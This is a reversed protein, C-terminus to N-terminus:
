SGTETLTMCATWNVTKLGWAANAQWIDKRQFLTGDRFIYGKKTVDRPFEVIDGYRYSRPLKGRIKAGNLQYSLKYKRGRGLAMSFPPISKTQVGNVFWSVQDTKTGTQTIDFSVASLNRIVKLKGPLHIEKLGSCGEFANEGIMEVSDPIMIKEVGCNQFAGNEISVVSDPISIEKISDYPFARFKISTVGPDIVVKKPIGEYPEPLFEGQKMEGEGSIRLEGDGTLRWTVNDGCFGAAVETAAFSDQCSLIMQFCFIIFLITFHYRKM